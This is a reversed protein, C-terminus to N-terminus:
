PLSVYIDYAYYRLTEAAHLSLSNTILSFYFGRKKQCMEGLIELLLFSRWRRIANLYNYRLGLFSYKPEIHRFNKKFM